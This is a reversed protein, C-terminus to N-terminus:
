WLFQTSLRDSFIRYGLVLEHTGQSYGSISGTNYEYSYGMYLSNQIRIGFLFGLSNDYSWSLGTWLLERYILKTLLDAQWPYFRNYKVLTTPQLSFQPGLHLNYGATFFHYLGQNGTETFHEDSLLISGFQHLSYGIFLNNGHLLVGTNFNLRSINSPTSAYRQYVEDLDPNYLAIKSAIFRQNAYETSLGFALLYDKSVQLMFSYTLYASIEQYPGFSHMSMYMGAGHNISGRQDRLKGYLRPVSKRLTRKKPDADKFANLSGNLGAYYTMPAGEVSTWQRRYGLNLNIADEIGTFAPNIAHISYVFNTLQFQEQASLDPTCFFFLFICWHIQTCKLIKYPYNKLYM